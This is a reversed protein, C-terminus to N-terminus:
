KLEGHTAQMLMLDWRWKTIADEDGGYSGYAAIHVDTKLSMRFDGGKYGTFTKGIASKANALMSEATVDREPNFALEAYVGRWSMPEGFGNPFVLDSPVKELKEILEGLNM